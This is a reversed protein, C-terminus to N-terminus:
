VLAGMVLLATVTTALAAAGICLIFEERNRKAIKQRNTMRKRNTM